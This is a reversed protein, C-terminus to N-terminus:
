CVTIPLNVLEVTISMFGELEQRGKVRGRCSERVFGVHRGGWRGLGAEGGRDPRSRGLLSHIRDLCGMKRRVGPGVQGCPCARCSLVRGRYLGAAVLGALTTLPRDYSTFRPNTSGSLTLQRAPNNRAVRPLRLQPQRRHSARKRTPVPGDEPIESDRNLRALVLRGLEPKDEQEDQGAM